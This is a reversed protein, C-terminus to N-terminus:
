VHHVPRLLDSMPFGVRQEHAVICLTGEGWVGRVLGLNRRQAEHLKKAHPALTCSTVLAVGQRARWGRAAEKRDEKQRRRVRKKKERERVRERV